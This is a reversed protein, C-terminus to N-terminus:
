EKKAPEEEKAKEKGGEKTEEKPPEVVKKSILKGETSVQIEYDKNDITVRVEYSTKDNDKILAIEQVQGDQTEKDITAKVDKPLDGADVTDRSNKILVKGQADVLLSLARGEAFAAALYSSKGATTIRLLTKVEAGEAEKLIATKVAPPVQDLTVPETKRDVKAEGGAAPVAMLIMLGALAAWARGMRM